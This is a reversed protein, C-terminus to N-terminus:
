PTIQNKSISIGVGDGLIDRSSFFENTSFGPCKYVAYSSVLSGTYLATFVLGSRSLVRLTKDPSIFYYSGHKVFELAPYFPTIEGVVTLTSGNFTILRNAYLGTEIIELSSPDVTLRGLDQDFISSSITDLLYLNKHPNTIYDTNIEYAALKFSNLSTNCERVFLYNDTCALGRSYYSNPINLTQATKGTSIDLSVINSGTSAFAFNNNCAVGNNITSKIGISRVVSFTTGDFSLVALKNDSRIAIRSDSYVSFDSIRDSSYKFTGLVALTDPDLAMLGYDGAEFYSQAYLYSGGKLIRTPIYRPSVTTITSVNM